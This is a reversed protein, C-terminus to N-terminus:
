DVRPQPELAAPNRLRGERGIEYDHAGNCTLERAREQRQRAEDRRAARRSPAQAGRTGFLESELKRRELKRAEDRLDKMATGRQDEARPDRTRQLYKYHPQLRDQGQGTPFGDEARTKVEFRSTACM